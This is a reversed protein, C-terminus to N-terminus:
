PASWIEHTRLIDDSTFAGAEIVSSYNEVLYELFKTVFERQERSCARVLRNDMGDYALHFLLQDLYVEQTNMTDLTLRILAPMYYMLGEPSAFCLPDWGPNGLQALGITDVDFDLLTQDHEACECCHRYDAFHSPKQVNFIRKAEQKWIMIRM